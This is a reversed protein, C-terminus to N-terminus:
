QWRRRGTEFTFLAKMLPGFDDRVEIAISHGGAETADHELDKAMHALAEAAEEQVTEIDPLEIGEEDPALYDGDRLDFYYRKM